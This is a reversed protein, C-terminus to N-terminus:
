KKRKTYKRKPKVAVGKNDDTVYNYASLEGILKSYNILPIGVKEVLKAPEKKETEPVYKLKLHNLILNLKDDLKANYKELEVYDQETLLRYDGAKLIERGYQYSYKTILKLKNWFM